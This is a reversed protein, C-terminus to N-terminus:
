RKAGHRYLADMSRQLLERGSGSGQAQPTVCLQTIHGTEPAVMSALPLVPRM